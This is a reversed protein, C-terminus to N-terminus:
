RTRHIQSPLRVTGAIAKVLRLDEEADAATPDVLELSLGSGDPLVARATVDLYSGQMSRIAQVIVQGKVPGVDIPQTGPGFDQRDSGSWFRRLREVQPSTVAINLERLPEAEDAADQPSPPHAILVTETSSADIEWDAPIRVTVPGVTQEAGLNIVNVLRKHRGVLAAGGLTAVFIVWMVGQMAYGRWPAQQWTKPM